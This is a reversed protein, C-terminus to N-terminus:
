VFFDASFLKFTISLSIIKYQQLKFLAQTLILSFQIFQRLQGFNYVNIKNRMETSDFSLSGSVDSSDERGDKNGLMWLPCPTAEEDCSSIASMVSCTNFFSEAALGWRWNDDDWYASVESGVTVLLTIVSFHSGGKPYWLRTVGISKFSENSRFLKSLFIGVVDFFRAWCSRSAKSPRGFSNVQSGFPLISIANANRVLYSYNSDLVIISFQFTCNLFIKRLCTIVGFYSAFRIYLEM